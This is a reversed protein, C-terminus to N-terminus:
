WNAGRGVGLAEELWPIINKNLYSFSRRKSDSWVRTM